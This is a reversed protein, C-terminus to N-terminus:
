CVKLHGDFDIYGRVLLKFELLRSLYKFEAASQLSQANKTREPRM